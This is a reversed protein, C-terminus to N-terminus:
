GVEAVSAAWVAWGAEPLTDARLGARLAELALVEGPPINGLNVGPGVRRILEAQQMRLPAEWMLRDPDSVAERVRELEEVLVEGQDSYIGVGKGSERGELIVLAAGAALDEELRAGLERRPLRVGAAKGGLEALVAAGAAVARRIVRSRELRPMPGTGDSVELATFGLALAHEIFAEGRGQRCAVELFTGGPYALIGRRGILRLKAELVQRPYFASTGFPLKWFDIAEGATELLDATGRLGLGKDMVMTLGVRRPKGGRGPLPHGIVGSWAPERNGAPM